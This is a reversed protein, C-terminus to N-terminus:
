GSDSSKSFDGAVKGRIKENKFRSKSHGRRVVNRAPVKKDGNHNMACIVGCSVDRPLMM